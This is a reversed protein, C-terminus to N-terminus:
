RMEHVFQRPTQRRRLSLHTAKPYAPVTSSRRDHEEDLDLQPTPLHHKEAATFMETKLVNAVFPASGDILAALTRGATWHGQSLIKYTQADLTPIEKLVARLKRYTEEEGLLQKAVDLLHSQVLNWAELNPEEEEHHFLDLGVPLNEIKELYYPIWEGQLLRGHQPAIIQVPPTLRHILHVARKLALNGPMYLQHFARMGAWDRADAWLDSVRLPTLGGFLDGSFLVRTYPDYLMVAGRFHCFPSPVFIVRHGTPLDLGTKHKETAVFHDRSLGLHVALRWTDESCIIASKSSCHALINPASSCVDPDQHNLFLASIQNVDGLIASIKTEVTTHDSHSGPDILLNFRTKQGGESHGEFVRLYPNSHFIAHPDRKGVWWVGPAIELPQQADFM